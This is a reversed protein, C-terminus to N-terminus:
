RRWTGGHTQGDAKGCTDARGWLVSKGDCKIPSRHLMLLMVSVFFRCTAFTGINKLSKYYLYGIITRILRFM